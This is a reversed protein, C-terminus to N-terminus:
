RLCDCIAARQLPLVRWLRARVTGLLLLTRSVGNALVKHFMNGFVIYKYLDVVSMAPYSLMGGWSGNGVAQFRGNWGADPLSTADSLKLSSLSECSAAAALDPQPMLAAIAAASL